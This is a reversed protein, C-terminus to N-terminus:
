LGGKPLIRAKPVSAKMELDDLRRPQFRWALQM